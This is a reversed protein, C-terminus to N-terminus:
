AEVRGDESLPPSADGGKAKKRPKIESISLRHLNLQGIPFVVVQRLTIHDTTISKPYIDPPHTMPPTTTFWIYITVRM